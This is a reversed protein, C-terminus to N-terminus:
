CHAAAAVLDVASAAVFEQQSSHALAHNTRREAAVTSTRDSSIGSACLSGGTHGPDVETDGPLEVLRQLSRYLDRM